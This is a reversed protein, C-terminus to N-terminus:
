IIKSNESSEYLTVPTRVYLEKERIVDKSDNSINDSLILYDKEDIEIQYYKKNNDDLIDKKKVIVKTGRIVKSQEKFDENYVIIENQNGAVYGDEYIVKKNKFLLTISLVTIGIILLTLILIIIKKKKTKKKSNDRM